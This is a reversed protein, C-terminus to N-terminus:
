RDVGGTRDAGSDAREQQRDASFAGQGPGVQSCMGASCIVTSNTCFNYASCCEGAPCQAVSDGCVAGSRARPLSSSPVMRGACTSNKGSLTCQCTVGCDSGARCIGYQDCCETAPCMALGAGCLGGSHAVVLGKGAAGLLSGCLSGLTTTATANEAGACENFCRAATLLTPTPFCGCRRRM